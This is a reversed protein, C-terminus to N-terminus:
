LSAGLQRGRMVCDDTWFYKWQSFRGAMALSGSPQTNRSWDTMPDLDNEERELGYAELWTWITDLAERRPHTFMVNAYPSWRCNIHCTGNAVAEADLFGMEVLENAVEHAIQKTSTAFPKYRSFYVETQIGSWGSPANNESLREVCHIRTSWKNEDYVYFWHGEIRQTHPAFVDIILLQSCDLAAAAERVHQPAERCCGVFEPLPLTSILKEYRHTTGNSFRLSKDKLDISIVKKGHHIRAGKAMPEFFSQYGGSKPYRFSTIYHINQKAGPLLGAEISQIDLKPMRPGLWDTTLNEPETAWYKRTYTAPFNQAFTTGYSCELWQLYNVPSLPIVSKAAAIMEAACQSRLPEPIQWLHAQAPHDIWSGLHYNRTRAAFERLEGRTNQFFLEKVYEHKTFSVHPGQDLTFGFHEQSAAHGGYTAEKEFLLCQDHGSHYSASLGALGAGLISIM